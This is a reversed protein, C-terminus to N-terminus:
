IHALKREEFHDNINVLEFKKLEGGNWKLFKRKYFFYIKFKTGRTPFGVVPRYHIRKSPLDCYSTLYEPFTKLQRVLHLIMKTQYRKDTSLHNYKLATHILLKKMQKHEPCFPM